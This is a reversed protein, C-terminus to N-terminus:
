HQDNFQPVNPPAAPAVNNDKSKRAKKISAMLEKSPSFKYEDELRYSNTRAYFDLSSRERARVWAEYAKHMLAKKPAADTVKAAQMEYLRALFHLGIEQTATKEYERSAEIQAQIAVPADGRLELVKVLTPFGKLHYRTDANMVGLISDVADQLQGAKMMKWAPVYRASLSIYAGTATSELEQVSERMQHATIMRKMDPVLAEIRAKIIPDAEKYINVIQVYGAGNPDEMGGYKAWYEGCAALLAEANPALPEDAERGGGTTAAKGSQKDRRANAILISYNRLAKDLEPMDEYIHGITHGAIDAGQVIVKNPEGPKPNSVLRELDRADKQARATRLLKITTEDYLGAKYSRTWAQEFWLRYTEPNMIAGRRLYDLGADVSHKQAARFQPSDKVVGRLDSREHLDAYINYAWHWGATSWADIFQPDLTVVAEMLPMQRDTMGKHWYEDSKMWLLNAVQSKFGSALGAIMMSSMINFNLKTEKAMTPDISGSQGAMLRDLWVLSPGYRETKKTGPALNENNRMRVIDPQSANYCVLLLAALAITGWKKATM